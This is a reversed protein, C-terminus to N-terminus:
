YARVTMWQILGVAIPQSFQALVIIRFTSKFERARPVLTRFRISSFNEIADQTLRSLMLFRFRQETIYFARLSLASLTSIIIGTEVPKWSEKGDKGVIKLGSFLAMFDELFVQAEDAKQACLDSLATKLNCSTMITFRRFIQQLFFATTIAKKKLRGQQVLYRLVAATSHHLLAYASEVNMKESHNPDLDATKLHPMLFFNPRMQKKLLSIM